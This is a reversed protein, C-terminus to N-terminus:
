LTELIGTARSASDGNMVARVFVTDGPLAIPVFGRQDDAEDLDFGARTSVPHLSTVANRTIGVLVSVSGEFQTFRVRCIEGAAVVATASDQTEGGSIQFDFSVPTGM